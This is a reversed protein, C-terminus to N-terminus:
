SKISQIFQFIVESDKLGPESEFRSNLDIGAFLPHEFAALAQTSDPGIGGALLFPVELDYQQLRDWNFTLGNGGPNKGMTDFLFYDVIRQYEKLISFDFDASVGFAKIIGLNSQADRLEKCFAASEKGHLQVFDLGFRQVQQLIFPLSADVFVGVKEQIM